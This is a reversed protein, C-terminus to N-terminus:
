AAAVRQAPRAVLQAQKPTALRGARM